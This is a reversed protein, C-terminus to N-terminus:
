ITLLKKYKKYINIQTSFTNIELKHNIKIIFDMSSSNMSGKLLFKYNDIVMYIVISNANENNYIKINLFNMKIDGINIGLVCTYKKNNFKKILDIELDSYKGCNFIVKSVEFKNVINIASGIYDYDGHTSM